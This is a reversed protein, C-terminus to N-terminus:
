YATAECWTVNFYTQQTSSTPQADKGIRIIFGENQALVIPYEQGNIANLMDVMGTGGACASAAATAVGGACGIAIGTFIVPSWGIVSSVPNADLTRTGATLPGGSRFDTVLTTGQSTRRKQNNGTVTLATGGTDSVTFSRAVVLERETLFGATAAVTTVVNIQVREIIAFRTADGWRFSVLPDGAARGGYTPTRGNASYCGLVNPPHVLVRTNGGLDQSGAVQNGEVQTPPTANAVSNIVGLNNAGPAANNNTKTGSANVSFATNDSAITVRQSGTGTVGNGMLPTVANIQAINENWPTANATGQNATVTGSIAQTAPFSDSSVTVRPIGAGGVGTGTSVNTGGFQAVNTSANAPPTTTVTGSITVATMGAIGQISIVDASATGATGLAPQKGSTSAGSPLPLSAASVPQTTAGTPDIRLAAGATGVETGATNRLNVHLGRQATIRPAAANGATVAGLADNFVAGVNAISSTGATFASNDNFAAPAGCGAICIIRLSGGLDTSLLVQRGEVYTPAAANAVAPLVGSNTAGPAAGNNSLTGGSCGSICNVPLGAGATVATGSISTLNVKTPVQGTPLTGQATALSAWLALLFATAAKTRWVQWFKKRTKQGSIEILARIIGLEVANEEEPVARLTVKIQDDRFVDGTRRRLRIDASTLKSVHFATQTEFPCPIGDIIISDEEHIEIAVSYDPLSETVVFGAQPLKKRLVKAADCEGTVRIRM